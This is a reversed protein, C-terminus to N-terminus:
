GQFHGLLTRRLFTRAAFNIASPNHTSQRCPSTHDSVDTAHPLERHRGRKTGVLRVLGQKQRRVQLLPNGWPVPSSAAVISVAVPLAEVAETAASTLVEETGGEDTFTVRAKLMKGVEAPAVEHTADTADEIETDNQGDNALWQYAFTVGDLGDGDEIGDVSATLVEGVQPTGTIEPLGPLGTPASNSAETENTM